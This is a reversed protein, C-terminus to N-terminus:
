DNHVVEKVVFNAPFLLTIIGGDQELKIDYVYKGAPLSGSMTEADISVGITQAAVMCPQTIIAESSEATEKVTFVAPSGPVIVLGIVEWACSFTDGRSYIIDKEKAVIM